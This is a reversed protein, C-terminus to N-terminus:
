GAATSTPRPRAAGPAPLRDAPPPSTSPSVAAQLSHADPIASYTAAIAELDSNHYSGLAVVHLQIGSQRVEEQVYPLVTSRGDSILIVEAAELDGRDFLTGGCSGDKSRPPHEVQGPEQRTRRIDALCTMIAQMLRTENGGFSQGLIWDGLEIRETTSRAQRPPQERPPDVEVAFTRAYYVRPRGLNALIVARVIAAALVALPGRMSQSTDVLFYVIRKPEDSDAQPLHCLVPTPMLREQALIVERPTFEVRSRHTKGPVYLDGKMLLDLLLAPPLVREHLPLRYLDQLAEAPRYSLEGDRWRSEVTTVEPCLITAPEEVIRPMLREVVEVRAGQGGEPVVGGLDLFPLGLELVRRSIVNAEDPDIHFVTEPGHSRDGVASLVKWDGLAEQLDLLAEIREATERSVRGPVRIRFVGWRHGRHRGSNRILRELFWWCVVVWWDWLAIPRGM